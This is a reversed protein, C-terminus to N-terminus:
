YIEFNIFPSYISSDSSPCGFFFVSLILINNAPNKKM